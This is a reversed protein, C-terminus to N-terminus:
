TPSSRNRTPRSHSRIPAAVTDQNKKRSAAELEDLKEMLAGEAQLRQGPTLSQLRHVPINAFPWDADADIEKGLLEDVTWGLLAAVAAHKSPPIGRHHRWNNINQASENLEIQLWKWDKRISKLRADVRKLVQQREPSMGLALRFVNNLRYNLSM